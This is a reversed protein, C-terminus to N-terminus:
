KIRVDYMTGMKAFSLRPSSLAREWAKDSHGSMNATRYQTYGKELMIDIMREEVAARVETGAKADNYIMLVTPFPFIQTSPLVNIMLTTFEGEVVGVVTVFQPDNVFNFIDEACRDIGYPAAEKQATIGRRFLDVLAPNALANPNKIHLTQM